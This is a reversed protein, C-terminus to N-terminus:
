IKSLSETNKQSKYSNNFRRTMTSLFPIRLTKIARIKNVFVALDKRYKYGYFIRKYGKYYMWKNSNGKSKTNKYHNITIIISNNEIIIM